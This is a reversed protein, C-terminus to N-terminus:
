RRRRPAQAPVPRRDGIATRGPVASPAKTDPGLERAEHIDEILQHAERYLVKLIEVMQRESVSLAEVRANLRIRIGYQGAIEDLKRHAAAFDVIGAGRAPEACLVVNELVTMSDQLMFHQHVMGIGHAIADQPSRWACTEGNLRIAGENPVILGFLVNMITSKGAGNEGVVAHIEGPAISLSVSDVATLADFRVTIDTMEVSVTM